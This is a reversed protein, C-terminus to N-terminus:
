LFLIHPWPLLHSPTLSPTLPKRFCNRLCQQLSQSPIWANSPALFCNRFTMFCLAALAGPSIAHSAKRLLRQPVAAPYTSCSHRRCLEVGSTTGPAARGQSSSPLTPPYLTSTFGVTKNPWVTLRTAFFRHSPTTPKMPAANQVLRCESSNSGKRSGEISEPNVKLNTQRGVAEKPM